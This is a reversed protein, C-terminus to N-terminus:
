ICGRGHLRFDVNTDLCIVTAPMLIHCPIPISPPRLSQASIAYGRTPHCQMPRSISTFTLYRHVSLYSRALSSLGQDFAAKFRVQLLCCVTRMEVAGVARMHSAHVLDQVKSMTEKWVRGTGIDECRGGGVAVLLMGGM